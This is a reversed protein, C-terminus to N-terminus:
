DNLECIQFEIKNVILILCLATLQSVNLGMAKKDDWFLNYM